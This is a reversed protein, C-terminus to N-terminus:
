RKDWGGREDRDDRRDNHDGDRYSNRWDNDDRGRNNRGRDDDRRGYSADRRWDYGTWHYREGRDNVVWPSQYSGGIDVAAGPMRQWDRGSWRYIGYGGSHRDVGIVWGDGVDVAAGPARLWDRDGPYRFYIEHGRGHDPGMRWSLQGLDFRDRRDFRDHDAHALLPTTAIAALLLAKLTLRKMNMGEM